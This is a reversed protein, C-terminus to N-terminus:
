RRVITPQVSYRDRMVRDLRGIDMPPKHRISNVAQWLAANDRKLEAIEAELQEVAVSSM